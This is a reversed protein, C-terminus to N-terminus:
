AARNAIPELSRKVGRREYGRAEEYLRQIDQRLEPGWNARCTTCVLLLGGVVLGYVDREGQSRTFNGATLPYRNGCLKCSRLMKRRDTYITKTGSRVLTEVQEVLKSM